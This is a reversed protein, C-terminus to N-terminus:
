AVTLYSHLCQQQKCSANLIQCVNVTAVSQITSVAESHTESAEYKAFKEQAKRWNAFGTKTFAEDLKSFTFLKRRQAETCYFCLLM